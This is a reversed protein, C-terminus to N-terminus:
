SEAVGVYSWADVETVIRFQLVLTNPAFQFVFFVGKLKIVKPQVNEEKSPNGHECKNPKQTSYYKSM